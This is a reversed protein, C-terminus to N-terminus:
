TRNGGPLAQNGNYLLHYEVCDADFVAGQLPVEPQDRVAAHDVLLRASRGESNTARQRMAANVADSVM